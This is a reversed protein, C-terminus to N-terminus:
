ETTLVSQTQTVFAVPRGDDGSLETHIVITRRGVHIPRATGTVTGSRVARLFNTKSEITSTSAGAPLNLFACIGGLSDALTMLSGGHLVRGTTCRDPAWDITGVVETPEALTVKIGCAVAFPMVRVLDDSNPDLRDTM